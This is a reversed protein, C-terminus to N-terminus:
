NNEEFDDIDESDGNISDDTSMDESNTSKIGASLSWGRGWASQNSKKRWISNRTPRPIHRRHMNALFLREDENIGELLPQLQEM